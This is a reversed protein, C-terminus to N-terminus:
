HDKCGYGVRVVYKDFLIHNKWWWCDDSLIGVKNVLLKWLRKYSVAM